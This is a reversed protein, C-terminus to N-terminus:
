VGRNPFQRVRLDEPWASMDGGDKNRFVLRRAGRADHGNLCRISDTEERVGLQNVFVPVGAAQCQAVVSRAWALDFPRAEPRRDGGVIVWQLGPDPAYTAEGHAHGGAGGRRGRARDATNARDGGIYRRLDIEDLLPECSVFRVAAPTRLLLPIVEDARHQNEVSVGLWVNTLPWQMLHPERRVGRALATLTPTVGSVAESGDAGRNCAEVIRIFLDDDSLYSRMREAHITLVQFTHRPALAMVAFVQDILSGPVGDQFLDSTSNVLIRSREKWRLPQTLTAPVVEFDQEGKVSRRIPNWTADCWEIGPNDAV